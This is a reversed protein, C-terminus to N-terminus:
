PTDGTKTWAEIRKVCGLGNAIPNYALELTFGDLIRYTGYMGGSSPIFLSFTGLQPSASATFSYSGSISTPQNGAIRTQDWSSEGVRLTGTSDPPTLTFSSYALFPVWQHSKTETIEILSYRGVRSDKIPTLSPATNESGCGLLALSLLSCAVLKKM